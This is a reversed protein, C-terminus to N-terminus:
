VEKEKLRFYTIVWFIFPLSYKIIGTLFEKMAGPLRVWQEGGSKDFQYWDFLNEMHWGAPLNAEIVKGMFIGGLLSLLLGAIITKLISYRTFYISGLIFFAQVGFYVMLLYLGADNPIHRVGGGLINYVGAGQDLVGDHMFTPPAKKAIREALHVMPIDVLYFLLTYVIFFLVVGYLLGCLLKELHSAPVMLYQIAERKRSLASFVQSGFLCGTFFLGIYFAGFQYGISLPAYADMAVVVSFWFLLLGGMALVGLGYRRRNEAWHLSVLMWWRSFSFMSHM